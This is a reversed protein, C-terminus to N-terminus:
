WLKHTYERTEFGLLPGKLGRTLGLVKFVEGMEGPLMLQRIQRAQDVNSLPDGDDFAVMDAIGCAELFAAQTTYGAVTLGQGHASEALATFDVHATIDQLGPLILPDDHSRHHYFCKLTGNGRQPHYYEHRPYGYDIILALGKQLLGALSGIWASAALNVDFVYGDPLASMTAEPFASAMYEALAGHSLPGECYAFRGDSGGTVYLERLGQERKLLRHVPMADLVENALVVGYGGGDPLRDLWAVRTMLHPLRERLTAEQRARLEASPELMLYRGPLRGAEELWELIDRAMVGSGAGFELIDGGEVEELVQACQRAVCRSFLPSIEPATVFDGAEGFKQRGASYYGLGPAYLALDMYHAFPIRGGAGAIERLILECLRGSHAQAQPDPAPLEFYEDGKMM